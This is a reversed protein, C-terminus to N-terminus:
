DYGQGRQLLDSSDENIIVRAVMVPPRDRSLWNFLRRLLYSRVISIITFITAIALNDTASVQLGFMPLVLLQAAVAVWFGVAVNVLSEALSAKRSQSM